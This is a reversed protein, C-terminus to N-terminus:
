EPKPLRRLEGAISVEGEGSRPTPWSYRAVDHIPGPGAASCLLPLAHPFCPLSRTADFGSPFYKSQTEPSLEM